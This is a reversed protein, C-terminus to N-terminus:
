KVRRNCARELILIVTSHRELQNSNTKTQRHPAGDIAANPGDAVAGESIGYGGQGGDMLGIRWKVHIPSSVDFGRPGSNVGGEFPTFSTLPFM